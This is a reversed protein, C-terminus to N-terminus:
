GDPGPITNSFLEKMTELDPWGGLPMGDRTCHLIYGQLNASAWPCPIARHGFLRCLFHKKPTPIVMDSM